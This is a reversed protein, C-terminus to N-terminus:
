ITTKAAPFGLAVLFSAFSHKACMEVIRRRTIGAGGLEAYTRSHALDMAKSQNSVTKSLFSLFSNKTKVEREEFKSKDFPQTWRPRRFFRATIRLAPAQERRFPIINVCVLFCYVQINKKM